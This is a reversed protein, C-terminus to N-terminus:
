SGNKRSRNKYNKNLIYGPLIFGIIISMIIISIGFWPQGEYIAMMCAGVWWVISCWKIFRIKFIVGSSFVMIGMILSVLVPVTEFPYVKLLPFLFVIMVATIGCASLINYCITKPYSKVREKKEQRGATFYGILGNVVVMLIMAPLILHDLNYFGLIGIALTGIISFIGIAIFFHGSEAVERRTKEIMEKIISIEQQVQNQNM